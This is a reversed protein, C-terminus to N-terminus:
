YPINHLRIYRIAEAQNKEYGLKGHKLGFARLYHGMNRVIPSENKLMLEIFEVGNKNKELLWEIKWKFAFVFGKSCLVDASDNVFINWDGRDGQYLNELRLYEPYSTTLQKEKKQAADEDGLLILSENAERAYDLNIKNPVRHEMTPNRGISSICEKGGMYYGSYRHYPNPVTQITSLTNALKIFNDRQQRLEEIEKKIEINQPVEFKGYIKASYSEHRKQVASPLYVKFYPKFSSLDYKKKFNKYVDTELETDLVNLCVSLYHHTVKEKPREKLDEVDFYDGYNELGVKGWFQPTSCIKGWHRFVQSVRGLDEIKLFDFIHILVDEPLNGILSNDQSGSVLSLRDNEEKAEIEESKKLNKPDIHAIIRKETEDESDSITRSLDSASLNISTFTLFLISITVFNKFWM